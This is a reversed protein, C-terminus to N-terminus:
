SITYHFLTIYNSSNVIIKFFDFKICSKRFFDDNGMTVTNDVNLTSGATLTQQWTPILASPLSSGLAGNGLVVQSSTGLLNLAIDGSVTIPSNSVSFAPSAPTTVTLGVSTVTGDGTGQKLWMTAASNRIYVTSGVVIMFNPINKILVGATSGVNASATDPFSYRFHIGTLTGRAGNDYTETFANGVGTQNNFQGFSVFSILILLITLLTKMRLM